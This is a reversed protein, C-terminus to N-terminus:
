LVALTGQLNIDGSVTYDAVVILQQTAGITLSSATYNNGLFGSAYGYGYTDEPVINSWTVNFNTNNVKTLAQGTTGGTPLGNQITLTGEFVWVGLIKEYLNGTATDLYLDGNNGLLSSPMGTGTYWTAGAPGVPGQPGTINALLTM